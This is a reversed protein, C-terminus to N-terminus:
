FMNYTYPGQIFSNPSTQLIAGELTANPAMANGGGPAVTPTWSTLWSLLGSLGSNQTYLPINQVSNDIPNLTSTSASQTGSNKLIEYGFFLLVIAIIVNEFTKM